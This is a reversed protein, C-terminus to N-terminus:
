CSCLQMMAAGPFGDDEDADDDRHPDKRDCATAPTSDLSSLMSPSASSAAAAAWACLWLFVVPVGGATALGLVPLGKRPGTRLADPVRLKYDYAALERVDELLRVFSRSCARSALAM